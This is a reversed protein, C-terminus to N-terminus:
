LSGISNDKGQENLNDKNNRHMQFVAKIIARKDDRDLTTFHESVRDDSVWAGSAAMTVVYMRTYGFCDKLDVFLKYPTM